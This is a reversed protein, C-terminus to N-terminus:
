SVRYLGRSLIYDASQPNVHEILAARDGSAAAERAATSSEDKGDVGLVQSEPPYDEEDIEYGVRLIVYFPFTVWLLPGQIWDLCIKSGSFGGRVLDAGVALWLEVAGVTTDQLFQMQQFTAKRKVQNMRTLDSLDLVVNNPLNPFALVALAARESPYLTRSSSKDDRPGCVAVILQDCLTALRRVIREHALTGPNCSLGYRIIKTM